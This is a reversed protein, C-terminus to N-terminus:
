EELYLLIINNGFEDRTGDEFDDNMNILFLNGPPLRTDAYRKLLDVGMALPIGNIIPEDLRTNIDFIWRTYFTNYRFTLIYTENDLSISYSYYYTDKKLPIKILAM